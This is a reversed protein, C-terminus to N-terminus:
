ESVEKIVTYNKYEEDSLKDTIICTRNLTGFNVAFVRNFKSSDALVYTIYSNEYARNKLIAEDIDPTTLGRNKDIGNAGLFCKTFNYKNLNEVATVGVIAETTLKLEGGIVFARLGKYILKKAHVIGSTVFTAKCSSPIFNILKETTTGADIFVFDDNRILTSAYKAILEKEAMHHTSKTRIDEETSIVGNDNKKVTAGGHVKNLRGQESLTNLDRRVTSESINLLSSLEQVTVAKKGELLSLIANFREETLM